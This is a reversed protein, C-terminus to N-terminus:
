QFINWIAFGSALFLVLAIKEDNHTITKPKQNKHTIIPVQARHVVSRPKALPAQPGLVDNSNTATQALKHSKMALTNVKENKGLSFKEHSVLIKNNYRVTGSRIKLNMDSPLMYINGGVSYDVKSLAYSLTDQYRKIDEQINVRRKM